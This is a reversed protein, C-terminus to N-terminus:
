GAPRPAQLRSRARPPSMRCYDPRRNGVISLMFPMDIASLLRCCVQPAELPELRSPRSGHLRGTGGAAGWRRSARTCSHHRCARSPTTVPSTCAAVQLLRPPPLPLATPASTGHHAGPMSGSVTSHRRPSPTPTCASSALRHARRGGGAPQLPSLAMWTRLGSSSHVGDLHAQCAVWRRAWSATYALSLLAVRTPAACAHM